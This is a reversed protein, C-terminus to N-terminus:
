VKGVSAEVGGTEKAGGCHIRSGGLRLAFGLAVAGKVLLLVVLQALVKPLALVARAEDFHFAHLEARDLVLDLAVLAAVIM